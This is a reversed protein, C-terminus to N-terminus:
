ILAALQLSVQIQFCNYPSPLFLLTTKEGWGKYNSEFEPIEEILQRKQTSIFDICEFLKERQKKNRDTENGIEPFTYIEKLIPNNLLVEELIKKCDNDDFIHPPTSFGIDVYRSRIISLCFEHFNGIFSRDNLKPIGVLRDKMEEAAKNTFTLCLVSFFKDKKDTLLYRVRETLIRTKGSGAAAEVLVAGEGENFLVIEEQEKSLIAKNM